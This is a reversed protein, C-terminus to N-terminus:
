TNDAQQGNKNGQKRMYEVLGRLREAAASVAVQRKKVQEAYAELVEASRLVQPILPNNQDSVGARRIKDVLERALQAYRTFVEIEVSDIKPQDQLLGNVMNDYEDLESM